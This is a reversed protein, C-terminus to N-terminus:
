LTKAKQMLRSIPLHQPCVKQCRNCAICDEPKGRDSGFDPKKTSADRLRENMFTFVDPIPINKPCEPLCYECGTCDVAGEGRLIRVVEDMAALEKQTLPKPCLMTNINDKMQELNSMGSLIMAVSDFGAVYRLAYNARSQGLDDLLKGANPPINVLRGGRVPEMVLVPKDHKQCVEYCKRSQVKPDDMDLYNFQLQVFEMEPYETLIQDLMEATDHFSFGIHRVRGEKKLRKVVEFANCAQMKSYYNRSLAHMLYLDFYEVGCNKLQKEFLPIIEAETEFYPSSLKNTLWFSERPYREAVCERVAHESQKDLYGYATDFYNFGAQMFLDVMQKTQQIDVKSVGNEEIMPLRMMGFALRKEGFLWHKKAM